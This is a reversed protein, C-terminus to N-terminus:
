NGAHKSQLPFVKCAPKKKTTHRTLFDPLPTADDKIAKVVETVDFKTVEEPEVDVVCSSPLTGHEDLYMEMGKEPSGYHKIYLELVEEPTDATDVASQFQETIEEAELTDDDEYNAMAEAMALVEEETAQTLKPTDVVPLRTVPPTYPLYLYDYDDNYKGGNQWKNNTNRSHSYSPNNCYHPSSLWCGDKWAGSKENAIVVRGSDDMFFLKNNSGIAKELFTKFNDEHILAPNSQLIPKLTHEVFHWTDSKTKDPEPFGSIIGNHMMYLDMGHEDKDTIKFPHCNTEDKRGATGFRLHMTYMEKHKHKRYLQLTQLYSGVVKEVQVRGDEVWMVGLGDKNHSSANRFKTNSFQGSYDPKHAILCM